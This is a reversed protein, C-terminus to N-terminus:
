LTPTVERLIACVATMRSIPHRVFRRVAGLVPGVEAVPKSILLRPALAQGHIEGERRVASVLATLEGGFHLPILLTRILSLYAPWHSLHRYMSAVLVTDRDEGFSNLEHVLRRVTPAMDSMAPLPPLIENYTASVSIELDAEASIHNNVGTKEFRALFASLCVLALANTHHYSDLIARITSRADQHIGASSLTDDSLPQIAPLTLQRRIHEARAPAQGLYVPKVTTWVWELAGPMTALHRWILNVVSVDLTRKIDAFINAVDPPAEAEPVAPLPDRLFDATSMAFRGPGRAPSHRCSIEAGGTLSKYLPSPHRVFEEISYCIDSPDPQRRKGPFGLLRAAPASCSKLSRESRGCTKEPNTDIPSEPNPAVLFPV